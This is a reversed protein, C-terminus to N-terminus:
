YRCIKVWVGGQNVWTCTREENGATEDGEVKISYTVSGALSFPPVKEWGDRIMADEDITGDDNRHIRIPKSM